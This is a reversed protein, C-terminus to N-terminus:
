CPSGLDVESPLPLLRQKWPKHYLPSPSLAALVKGLALHMALLYSPQEPLVEGLLGTQLHGSEVSPQTCCAVLHLLQHDVVTGDSGSFPHTPAGWFSLTELFYGLLSCVFSAARSFWCRSYEWVLYSWWSNTEQPQWLFSPPKLCRFDIRETRSSCTWGWLTPLVMSRWLGRPLIRGQKM